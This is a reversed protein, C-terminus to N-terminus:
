DIRNRMEFEHELHTTKYADARYYHKRCLDKFKQTKEVTYQLSKKNEVQIQTIYQNYHRDYLGLNQEIRGKLQMM